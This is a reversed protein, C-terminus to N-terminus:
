VSQSLIKFHFTVWFRLLICVRPPPPPHPLYYTFGRVRGGDRGEREGGCFCNGITGGSRVGVRLLVRVLAGAPLGPACRTVSCGSAQPRSTVVPTM